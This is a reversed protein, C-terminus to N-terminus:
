SEYTFGFVNSSDGDYVRYRFSDFKHISKWLNNHRTTSVEGHLDIIGLEANYADPNVYWLDLAKSVTPYPAAVNSAKEILSEKILVARKNLLRLVGDAGGEYLARLIQEESYTPNM